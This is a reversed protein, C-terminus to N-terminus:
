THLLNQLVLLGAAIMVTVGCASWSIKDAQSIIKKPQKTPNPLQYGYGRLIMAKYVLKSKDYSRILLSGTLQALVQINRRSLKKSEFGRLKMARQMTTLMEAFEELYRYSLLMMDVIIYSLGLSRLTKISTLFPATGFLILSVTLICLFRTLILLVAFCGEQKVSVWGLNFIVTDGAVFPLFIVVIVIFIGPYRLRSILFSLPLRSLSYLMVTVGIIVPLLVLKEVFAFAFILTFLAIMKSRQEWRHIPSKLHAYKDLALKM